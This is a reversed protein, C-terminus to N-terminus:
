INFMDIEKSRNSDDIRGDNMPSPRISQKAKYIANAPVQERIPRTDDIFIDYTDHNHKKIIVGYIKNRIGGGSNDEIGVIEKEDYTYDIGANEMFYRDLDDQHISKGLLNHRYRAGVQGFIQTFIQKIRDDDDNIDINQLHSIVATVKPNVEKVSMNREQETANFNKINNIMKHLFEKMQREDGNLKIKDNNFNDILVLFNNHPLYYPINDIYYLWYGDIASVSLDKIYINDRLFDKEDFIIGTKYKYNAYLASILQFFFNYWENEDKNGKNMMKLNNFSNDFTNSMWEILSHNFGETFLIRCVQRRIKPDNYLSTHRAYKEKIGRVRDTVIEFDQVCETCISYYYLMGFHPCINPELLKRSLQEYVNVEIDDKTYINVDMVDSPSIPQYLRKIRIFVGISDRDCEIKSDLNKRIPYCSRFVLYGKKSLLKYHGIDVYKIHSLLNRFKGRNLCTHEGSQKLSFNNKVENAIHNRESLSNMSHHTLIDQVVNLGFYENLAPNDIKITHNNVFVPKMAPHNPFPYPLMQGYLSANVDQHPNTFQHYMPAPGAFKTNPNSFKNINVNPNRKSQVTTPYVKFEVTPQQPNKIKDLKMENEYREIKRVKDEVFKRKDDRKSQNEYPNRSKPEM